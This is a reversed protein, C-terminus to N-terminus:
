ELLDKATIKRKVPAFGRCLVHGDVISFLRGGIKLTKM